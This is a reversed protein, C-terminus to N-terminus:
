ILAKSKKKEVFSILGKNILNAYFFINKAHTKMDELQLTAGGSGETLFIGVKDLVKKLTPIESLSEHNLGFDMLAELYCDDIIREVEPTIPEMFKMAKYFEAQPIEGRIYKDYFYRLNGDCLKRIGAAHDLHLETTRVKDRGM